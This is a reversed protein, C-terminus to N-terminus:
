YYILMSKLDINLSRFITRLNALGAAAGKGGGGDGVYALLDSLKRERTNQDVLVVSCIFIVRRPSPLRSQGCRSTYLSTSRHYSYVIIRPVVRFSGVASESRASIHPEKAQIGTVQIGLWGGQPPCTWAQPMLTM